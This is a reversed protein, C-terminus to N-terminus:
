RITTEVWSDRPRFSDETLFLEPDESAPFGAVTLSFVSPWAVPRDQRFLFVCVCACAYVCVQIGRAAAGPGQPAPDRRGQRLHGGQVGGSAAGPGRRQVQVQAMSLILFLIYIVVM